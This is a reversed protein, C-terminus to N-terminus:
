TAGGQTRQPFMIEVIEKGWWTLRSAKFMQSGKQIFGYEVETVLANYIYRMKRRFVAKDSVLYTNELNRDLTITNGTVGFVYFDTEAKQTDQIEYRHSATDIAFGTADSIVVDKQGAAADSTLFRDDNVVDLHLNNMLLEYLYDGYKQTVRIAHDHSDLKVYVTIVLNYQVNLGGMLYMWESGNMTIPDVVITLDPNPIVERDGFLVANSALPVNGIAKQVTATDTTLFDSQVPNCLLMTNTGTIKLISNYEIHRDNTDIFVIQEADNFHFTNDVTAVSGGTLLSATLATRAGANKVILNIVGDCVQELSHCQGM